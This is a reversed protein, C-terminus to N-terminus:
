LSRELVAALCETLRNERPDIEGRTYKTVRRFLSIL